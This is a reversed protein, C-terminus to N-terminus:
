VEQMRRARKAGESQGKQFSGVKVKSLAIFDDIVLGVVASSRPVPKYMTTLSDADVIDHELAMGVHCSQALDVSQSDGMALTGLAGYVVKSTLHVDKVARLQGFEKLHLPGVLM